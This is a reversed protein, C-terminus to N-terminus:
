GDGGSPADGDAERERLFRSIEAALADGSPLDDSEELLELSDARRELEEVYSATDADTAVAQSVQEVYEESAEDLETVDIETSLV